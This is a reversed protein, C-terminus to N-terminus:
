EERDSGGGPGPGILRGIAEQEARAREEATMSGAQEARAAEEIQRRVASPDYLEREAQDRLIEGLSIVGQVPLLPWGVLLKLLGM